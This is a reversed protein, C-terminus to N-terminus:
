RPQAPLQPAPRSNLREMEALLERSIVLLHADFTKPGMSEFTMRYTYSSECDEMAEVETYVAMRELGNKRLGRVHFFASTATRTYTVRPILHVNDTFPLIFRPDMMIREDTLSLEPEQLVLEIPWRRTPNVAVERPGFQKLLLNSWRWADFDSKFARHSKEDKISQRKELLERFGELEPPHLSVRLTSM